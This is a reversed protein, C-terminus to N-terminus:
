ATANKAPSTTRRRATELRAEPKWTTAGLPTPSLGLPGRLCSPFGWKFGAFLGFGFVDRKLVCPMAWAVTARVAWRLPGSLSGRSCAGGRELACAERPRAGGRELSFAERPRARGRELSLAERPRAGGRELSFAERPRAGGRELTRAARSRARGRELANRACVGLGTRPYPCKISQGYCPPAMM